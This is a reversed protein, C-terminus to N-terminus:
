TEYGRESCLHETLKKIISHIVGVIAVFFRLVISLFIYKQLAVLYSEQTFFHM